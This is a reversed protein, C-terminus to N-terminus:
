ILVLTFGKKFVNEPPARNFVRSKSSNWPHNCNFIQLSASFQSAMVHNVHFLGNFTVIMQFPLINSKKPSNRSNSTEQNIRNLYTSKHSSNEIFAFSRLKFSQSLSDLEDPEDAQYFDISNILIKFSWM